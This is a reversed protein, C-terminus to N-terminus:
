NKIIKKTITGKGTNIQLFYIGNKLNRFDIKIEKTEIVLQGLFNYVKLNKLNKVKSLYLFDQFPNPFVSINEFSNNEISLNSLGVILNDVIFTSQDHESSIVFSTVDTWNLNVPPAIGNVLSYVVPSNSGGIPTITFDVDYQNGDLAIVSTVDVASSFSITASSSHIDGNNSSDAVYGSTGGWGSANWLTTSSTGTFTVTIGDLTETINDGNDHASSWGFTTQANSTNLVFLVLFLTIKYIM